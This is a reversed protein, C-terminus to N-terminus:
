WFLLVCVCVCVCIPITTLFSMITACKVVFYERCIDVFSMCVCVCSLVSFYTPFIHLIILIWFTIENWIHNLCEIYSVYIYTFHIMIIIIIYCCSIQLSSICCLTKLPIPFVHLIFCLSDYTNNRTHHIHKTHKQLDFIIQYYRLNYPFNVRIMKTHTHINCPM